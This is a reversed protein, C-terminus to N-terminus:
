KMVKLKVDVTAILGNIFLSLTERLQKPLIKGVKTPRLELRIIEFKNIRNLDCQHTILNTFCIEDFFHRHQLDSYAGKNTYHPVIIEIIGKPKSIRWLEFIVDEPKDLHELINLLLIFDYTNNKIPYPFKDFDFSKTIKSNKQVDVNDWGKRINVGCGFNLKKM